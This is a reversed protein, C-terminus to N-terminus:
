NNVFSPNKSKMNQCKSFPSILEQLYKDQSLLCMRKWRKNTVKSKKWKKAIKYRMSFDNRMKFIAHKFYYKHNIQFLIEFYM